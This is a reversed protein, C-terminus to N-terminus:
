GERRPLHDVSEYDVADSPEDVPGLAGLDPPGVPLELTIVPEPAEGRSLDATAAYEIRQHYIGVLVRTFM